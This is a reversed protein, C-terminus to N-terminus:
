PLRAGPPRPRGDPPAERYTRDLREVAEVLAEPSGANEIVDDAVALRAERTAQAALIARAQEDTAGDRAKLRTVQVEMPCDVVLVRDVWGALGSEVLLPVVVIQYPGGAAECERLTEALIRPHLISELRRRSAPDAFVLRRLSARDLTGHADLVGDGFAEVVAALGPSGPTVVARSIVDLDIVPVGKGAFLDAVTSKGSAIGGTLGIRLPGATGAGRDPRSV